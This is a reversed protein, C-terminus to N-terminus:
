PEDDPHRGLVAEIDMDQGDRKVTLRIKQGPKRQYLRQLMEDRSGIKRDNVALIVDGSQLGANDAPSAPRVDMVKLGDKTEEVYAGLYGSGKPRAPPGGRQSPGLALGEPISYEDLEIKLDVTGDGRKVRVAVETGEPYVGIAGLYRERNFVPYQNVKVILDGQRLGASAATSGPAVSVVRAGEGQTNLDALQLGAVMGHHVKGKQGGQMMTPLFNKIQNSPIAYGVGSNVRNEYRTAIRGNIGVLKCDLTVLPGGSNGPNVAADTQICDFYTQQNRHMASVIGLTVTPYWKSDADPMSTVGFPNGCAMVYQGMELKDSDGLTIFPFKEEADIKFLTLDGLLDTCIQRAPYTKGTFLRVTTKSQAGAVHHNTLCYGDPSIMIGSGGGFFVFREMVQRSCDEVRKQLRAAQDQAAAVGGLALVLALVRLRLFNM